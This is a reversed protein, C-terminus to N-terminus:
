KLKLDITSDRDTDFVSLRKTKSTAGGHAAQLQYDANFSLGYFHYEGNGQTVYSRVQLTKSDKCQVVAGDVPKDQSDTVVGHVIRTSTDENRNGQDPNDQPAAFAPVVVTIMIALVISRFLRM